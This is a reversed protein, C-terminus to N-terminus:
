IPLTDLSDCRLVWANRDMNDLLSTMPHVDIGGVRQDREQSRLWAWL